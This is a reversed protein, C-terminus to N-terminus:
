IPRSRVFNATVNSRTQFNSVVHMLRTIRRRWLRSGGKAKKSCLELSQHNRVTFKIGARNSFPMKMDLSVPTQSRLETQVPYNSNRQYGDSLAEGGALIVGFLLTRSRNLQQDKWKVNLASEVAKFPPPAVPQTIRRSRCVSSFACM